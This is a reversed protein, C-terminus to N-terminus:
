SPQASVPASHRAVVVLHEADAAVRAVGLDLLREAAEGAFQVRVDVVVVGLRLLLELRCGLGVLHQGVGLPAAGVVGVPVLPQARAAEVRAAGGEARDVVEELREEAALPEAEAAAAAPPCGAAVDQHGGFDLQLLDHGPHLALDGEVGDAGALLAAAVPGLRAGRDGGALAAGPGTLQALHRPRREALHNATDGAIGTASGSLDRLGGAGSASATAARARPPGLRDLDRSPDFAPLPQPDGAGAVGAFGARRGPVEVHLHVHGVVLAELAVARVQDADYRDRRGLRHEAGDGGDGGELALALDLECGAGLRTV